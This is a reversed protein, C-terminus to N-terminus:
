RQYKGLLMRVLKAFFSPDDEKGYQLFLSKAMGEYRRRHWRTTAGGLLILFAFIVGMQLSATLNMSLSLSDDNNFKLFGFLFGSMLGYIGYFWSSRKKLDLGRYTTIAGVTLFVFFNVLIIIAMEARSGGKVISVNSL